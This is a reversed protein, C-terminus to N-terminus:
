MQWVCGLHQEDGQLMQSVAVSAARRSDERCCGLDDWATLWSSFQSLVLTVLWSCGRSSGSSCSGKQRWVVRPPQEWMTGLGEEASPFPDNWKGAVLSCAPAVATMEGGVAAGGCLLSWALVGMALVRRVLACGRGTRPTTPASSPALWPELAPMTASLGWASLTKPSFRRRSM